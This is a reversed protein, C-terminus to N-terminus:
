TSKLSQGVSKGAHEHVIRSSLGFTRMDHIMIPSSSMGEKYCNTKLLNGCEGSMQLTAIVQTLYLAADTNAPGQMASGIPNKMEAFVPGSYTM